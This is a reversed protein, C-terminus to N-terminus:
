RIGSLRKWVHTARNSLDDPIMYGDRGVQEICGHDRLLGIVVYIQYGPFSNNSDNVREIIQDATFPGSGTAAIEAMAAVTRDFTERSAKHEYESKGKKSWGVRILSGNRVKFIPYTSGRRKRTRAKTQKTRKTKKTAAPASTGAPQAHHGNLQARLGKFAVVIDRAQGAGKDDGSKFAEAGLQRIEAEARNLAEALRKSTQEM